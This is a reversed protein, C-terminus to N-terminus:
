TIRIREGNEDVSYESDEDVSCWNIFTNIFTNDMSIHLFDKVDIILRNYQNLGVLTYLIIEDDAFDFESQIHGTWSYANEDNIREINNSLQDIRLQRKNCFANLKYLNEIHAHTITQNGSHYYISYITRYNNTFRARLQSRLSIHNIYKNFIYAFLYGGNNTFKCLIWAYNGNYKDVSEDIVVQKKLNMSEDILAQPANLKCLTNIMTSRLKTIEDDRERIKQEYEAQMSDLKEKYVNECDTLRTNYDETLDNVKQTYDDTIDNVKQTFDDTLELIDDRKTSLFEKRQENINETLENITAQKTNCSNLLKATCEVQEEYLKKYHEVEAHLTQYKNYADLLCKFKEAPDDVNKVNIQLLKDVFYDDNYYTTSHM